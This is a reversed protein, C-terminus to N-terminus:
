RRPPTAPSTDLFARALLILAKGEGSTLENASGEGCCIKGLRDVYSLLFRDRNRFDFNQEFQQARRLFGILVQDDVETWAAATMLILYDLTVAPQPEPSPISLSDLEEGLAGFQMVHSLEHWLQFLPNVDGRGIFFSDVGEGISQPSVQGTSDGFLGFFNEIARPDNTSPLLAQSIEPQQDDSALGVLRALARLSSRAVEDFMAERAEDAGPTPIFFVEGVQWEGKQGRQVPLVGTESGTRGALPECRISRASGDALAIQVGGTHFSSGDAAGEAPLGAAELVEGLSRADPHSLLAIGIQELNDTCSSKAAAERRQQVAPLLLGVLVAIIAIVVLLEILTFGASGRVGGRSQPRRMTQFKVM